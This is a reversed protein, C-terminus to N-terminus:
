AAAEDDVRADRVRRIARKITAEGLGSVRVGQKVIDGYPVEDDLAQNIWADLENPAKTIAVAPPLGDGTTWGRWTVCRACDCGEIGRPDDGAACETDPDPDTDTDPDRRALSKLWEGIPPGEGPSPHDHRWQAYLAFVILAAILALLRM